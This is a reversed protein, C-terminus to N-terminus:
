KLRIWHKMCINKRFKETDNSACLILGLFDCETKDWNCIIIDYSNFIEVAGSYLILYNYLWIVYITVKTKNENQQWRQMQFYSFHIKYINKLDKYIEKLDFLM